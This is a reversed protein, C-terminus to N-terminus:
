STVNDLRTSVAALPVNLKETEPIVFGIERAVTVPILMSVTPESEPTMSVPLPEHLTEVAAVILPAVHLGVELEVTLTRAFMLTSNVRDKGTSALEYVCNVNGLSSIVISVPEKDAYVPAPIYGVLPNM